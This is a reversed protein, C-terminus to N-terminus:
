LYSFYVKFKSLFFKTVKLIKAQIYKAIKWGVGNSWHKKPFSQLKLFEHLPQFDEYDIMLKGNNLLRFIIANFLSKNIKWKKVM